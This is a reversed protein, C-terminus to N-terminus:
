LRKVSISGSGSRLRLLKGGGGIARRLERRSEEDRGGVTPDGFGDVRVDGDSTSADLNGSFHEPLELRLGGDGTRIEWDDAMASGDEARVEVSGDGTKLRVSKLAGSVRAGGDGSDLDVAGSINDFRLSGDGTHARLSGALDVGKISGDGTNLDLTGEIREIAISGDGSRAVVNCRKPVSAIVRASPSRKFGIMQRGVPRRIELRITNGTQEATVVISDAQAKDGARKEIELLVEPRDWSRIELSGDFTALSLDPTGNVTFRKEERVSYQDAGVTVMCASGLLLAAGCVAAAGFLSYADRKM